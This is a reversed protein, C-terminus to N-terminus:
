EYNLVLRTGRVGVSSRPTDLRVAAPALKGLKGSSYVLSGKKLFTSFIFKSNAPDFVYERLVLETSPGAALTTGDNFIIGITEGSGAIIKDAAFLKMGPRAQLSEGSRVIMPSGTVKKVMAVDSEAWCSLASVFLLFGILTRM